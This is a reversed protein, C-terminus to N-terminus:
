AQAKIRYSSKAPIGVTITEFGCSSLSFFWVFIERSLNSIM